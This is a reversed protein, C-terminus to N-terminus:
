NSLLVGNVVGEQSPRNTIRADGKDTKVVAGKTLINMRVYHRNASNEIVSIIKAKTIMKTKSDFLNIEDATRLGIKENGGRAKNKVRANPGITVNQTVKGLEAKRKDRKTKRKAGTKTRKSKAHSLSM